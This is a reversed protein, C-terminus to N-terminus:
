EWGGYRICGRHYLAEIREKLIPTIEEWHADTDLFEWSWSGFLKSVPDKLDLGLGKVVGGIYSDPRPTGPACDLEIAHVTTARAGAKVKTTM